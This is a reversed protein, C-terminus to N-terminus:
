QQAWWADGQSYYYDGILSQITQKMFLKHNNKNPM